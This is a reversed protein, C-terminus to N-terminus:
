SFNLKERKEKITVIVFIIIVVIAVFILGFLLAIALMETKKDTEFTVKSVEDELAISREAVVNEIFTEKNIVYKVTGLVSDKKIPLTLDGLEIDGKKVDIKENKASLINIDEALVLNLKEKVGSDTKIEIKDVLSGKEIVNVIDYNEYGYDLLKKTDSYRASVGNEKGEAHLVMAVLEFGDKNTCTVLCNKAPTTYGTKGAIAYKYYNPSDKILFAHTNKFVRPEGDYLSTNPLSCSTLASIRRFDENQMCYREIIAMDYATSYHNEDHMGNANLFNSNVAGIEKAKENMLESFEEVSGSIYEALITAAENASRLMMVELLQEITFSEGIKIGATTYGDPISEISYKSATTKDSLNDCNELVLIATLIKTISAPYLRENMNKDYLVTGTEMELLVAGESLLGLPDSENALNSEADTIEEDTQLEIDDEAFCIYINLFLINFALIATIIKKIM